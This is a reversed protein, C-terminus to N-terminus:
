GMTIDTSGKARYKYGVGPILSIPPAWMGGSAPVRTSSSVTSKIFDLNTAETIVNAILKTENSNYSLWNWTGEASGSISSTTNTVLPGTMTLIIDSDTPNNFKYMSENNMSITPPMFKGLVNVFTASSTTNKAFLGQRTSGETTVSIADNILKSGIDIYISCWSWGPNLTITQTVDGGGGGSAESFTVSFNESFTGGNGDDTTIKFTYEQAEITVGSKVHVEDSNAGGIELSAHTGGSTTALNYTHTDGVNADTTTLTGVKGTHGATLGAEETFTIDTPASNPNGVSYTWGNASYSKASSDSASYIENITYSGGYLYALVKTNETSSSLGVTGALTVIGTAANGSCLEWKNGLEGERYIDAHAGPFNTGQKAQDVCDTLQYVDGSDEVDPFSGSVIDVKFCVGSLNHSGTQYKIATVPTGEYTTSETWLYLDAAM